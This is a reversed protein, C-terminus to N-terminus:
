VTTDLHVSLNDIGQLAISNLAKPTKALRMTPFRTFLRRLAIEAEARALEAGLCRHIGSGFAVHSRDARSLDFTDAGEEDPTYGAAAIGVIVADGRRVHADAIVLDETAYRMLAYRVPSTHRLSEEVVRAWTHTGDLVLALMDPRQLLAYAANCILNVTTEHGASILLLLNDILEEDSRFGDGDDRARVLRSTLDNGPERRRQAVLDGLVQRISAMASAAEGQTRVSLLAEFPGRMLTSSRDDVGMYDCIVRVPLPYAFSERLDVPVGPSQASAIALRELLGDAM